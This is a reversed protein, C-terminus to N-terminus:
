IPKGIVSSQARNLFISVTTQSEFYGITTCQSYELKLPHSKVQFIFSQPLACIPAMIWAIIIM